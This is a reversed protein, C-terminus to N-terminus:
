TARNLMAGRGLYRRRPAGERCIGVSGKKSWTNCAISTRGLFTKRCVVGGGDMGLPYYQSPADKLTHTGQLLVSSCRWLAGGEAHLYGTAGDRPMGCPMGKLTQTGQAGDCPADKLTHTGRLVTVHCGV